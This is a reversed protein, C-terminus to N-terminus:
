AHAHDRSGIVADLALSLAMVLACGIVNFWLFGIDTTLWAAIVLAESLLAAFFVPTARVRELFFAVLFLGLITGYFLSGLINVAQILNDLMSAFTAFLVALVGWGATFLKAVRVYHGDPATPRFSRKYFDVVSTGGLATLESATSSMAACLIVALLLGVLGRPLNAMVFSIFIYDTDNTEARPLVQHILHRAEGRLAQTRGETARLRGAAESVAGDDHRDLAAQWDRITAQKTEFLTRQQDELARLEAGRPSARVATLTADNFFLPSPNFQHFVFVMVGVFLILFQMPIKLLGNFLLGLRSETISRGSLYRQVQSQDTGFYSLALFFGGTMGSWFTYRSGLGTSFDVINMKGLVGAVGVARGFSLGPPLRMVVVVFAVVMGGLMVVMQHKQTQSVARTGGAVTYLIVLAGISVCTLNLSWGLVTSLVIAPAYITIGASLGRQVLFLFAALQRTKRDFRGELFEYATFVRLGYFRPIFAISLVVMALPVGFYFQLFRMGDTYAQGPTSLFTIASAQTAMVSLGITHWRDAYGGHLYGAMDATHRTKWVGYVVIAGLTGFLVLWDFPTM